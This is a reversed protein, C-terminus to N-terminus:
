ILGKKKATDLFSVVRARQKAKWRVCLRTHLDMAKEHIRLEHKLDVWAGADPASEIEQKADGFGTRTSRKLSLPRSTITDWEVGLPCEWDVDGVEFRAALGERWKRGGIRSRCKTCHARCTCVNSEFFTM